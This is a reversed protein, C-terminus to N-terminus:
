QAYEEVTMIWKAVGGFMRSTSGGNPRLSGGSPGARLKYTIPSTSGPLHEATLAIARPQSTTDVYLVTSAIASSQGEVVCTAVVFGTTSATGFGTFRIVMRSTAMKPTISVSLVESGETATPITDDSPITATLTAYGSYTSSVAQLCGPTQAQSPNLVKFASGDHCLLYIGGDRVAGPLAVAGDPMKIAIPSLGDVALTCAGTNDSDAKMLITLGAAYSSIAPQLTVAYADTTGSDTSLTLGRSVQQGTYPLVTNTGAHIQSLCIWDVGDYVKLVWPTAADDLWITGAEAYSPASAGKHHTLLAQKGDNDEQRYTLGSKNPGILVPAQSM